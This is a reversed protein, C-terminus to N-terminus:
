YLKSPAVRKGAPTSGLDRLASRSVEHSQCICSRPDARGVVGEETFLDIPIVPFNAM